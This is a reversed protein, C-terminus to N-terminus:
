EREGKVPELADVAAALGQWLEAMTARTFRRRRGDVYARAAILVAMM